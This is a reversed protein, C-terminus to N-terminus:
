ASFLGACTTTVNMHLQSLKRAFLGSYTEPGAIFGCVCDPLWATVAVPKSGTIPPEFGGGAALNVATGQSAPIVM